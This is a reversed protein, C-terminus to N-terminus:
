VGPDRLFVNSPIPVVDALAQSEQPTDNMASIRSDPELLDPLAQPFLNVESRRDGISCGHEWGATLCLTIPSFIKYPAQQSELASASITACRILAINQKCCGIAGNKTTPVTQGSILKDANPLIVRDYLDPLLVNDGIEPDAEDWM